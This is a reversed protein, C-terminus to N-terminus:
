LDFDKADKAPGFKDKNPVGSFSDVSNTKKKKIHVEKDFKYVKSNAEEKTESEFPVENRTFKPLFLEYNTFKDKVWERGAICFRLYKDKFPKDRNFAEVFAEIRDHKDDQEELWSLSDTEKCINSIMRMIDNDRSVVAGTAPIIGDKYSYEHTKVRGVPGKRLGKSPDDKDVLLGQFGEGMDPGELDLIMFYGTENFKDKELYVGEIKCSINGPQLFKSTFGKSSFNGINKTSLGM